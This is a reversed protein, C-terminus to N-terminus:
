QLALQLYPSRRIAGDPGEGLYFDVALSHAELDYLATDSVLAKM